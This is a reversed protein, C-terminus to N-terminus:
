LHSFYKRLKSTSIVTVVVILNTKATFYVMLLQGNNRLNKAVTIQGESETCAPNQICHIVEEPTIERQQIQRLAHQSFVIPLM